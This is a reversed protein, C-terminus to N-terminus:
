LLLTSNRRYPSVGLFCASTPSTTTTASASGTGERRLIDHHGRPRRSILPRPRLTTEAAKLAATNSAAITANGNDPTLSATTSVALNAQTSADAIKAQMDSYASQVAATASSDAAIRAQLKTDLEQMQAVITLARDSAAAIRAQPLVLMYTRYSKTISQV